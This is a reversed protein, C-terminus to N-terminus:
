FNRVMWRACNEIFICLHRGEVFRCFKARSLLVKDVGKKPGLGFIVIRTLVYAGTQVRSLIIRQLWTLIGKNAKVDM